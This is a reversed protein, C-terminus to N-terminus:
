SVETTVGNKTTLRTETTESLEHSENTERARSNKDANVIEGAENSLTKLWSLLRM